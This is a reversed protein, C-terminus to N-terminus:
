GITSGLAECFKRYNNHTDKLATFYIKEVKPNRHLGSSLLGSFYLPAVDEGKGGFIGCGHAGLIVTVREGDPINDVVKQVASLVSAVTESWVLLDVSQPAACGLVYCARGTKTEEPSFYVIATENTGMKEQKRAAMIKAYNEQLDPFVKKMQIDQGSGLQLGSNAFNLVICPGTARQLLDGFTSDVVEVNHDRLEKKQLDTLAPYASEVTGKIVQLHLPNTGAASSSVIPKPNNFTTNYLGRFYTLGAATGKDESYKGALLTIYIKNEFLIEYVRGIGTVEATRQIAHGAVASGDYAEWQLKEPSTVIAIYQRAVEETGANGVAPPDPQIVVIAWLFFSFFSFM